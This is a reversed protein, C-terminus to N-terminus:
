HLNLLAELSCFKSYFGLATMINVGSGTLFDAILETETTTKMVETGFLMIMQQHHRAITKLCDLGGCM